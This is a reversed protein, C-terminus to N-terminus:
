IVGGMIDNRVYDTILDEFIATSDDHLKELIADAGRDQSVPRHLGVKIRVGVPDSTADVGIEIQENQGEALMAGRGLHVDFSLRSGRYWEPVFGGGVNVCREAVYVGRGIRFQDLTHLAVSRIEASKVGSRLAEEAQKFNSRFQTWGPYKGTLNVVLLDEALQVLATRDANWCRVRQRERPVPFGASKVELQLGGSALEVGAFGRSKLHPVVEFFDAQTLGGPALHLEAYTEIIIPTRYAV